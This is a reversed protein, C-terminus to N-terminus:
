ANIAEKKKDHAINAACIGDDIAKYVKSMTISDIKDGAAILAAMIHNKIDVPVPHKHM